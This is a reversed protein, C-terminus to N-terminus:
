RRMELLRVIVVVATIGTAVQMLVVMLLLLMYGMREGMGLILLKGSRVRTTNNTTAAHRWFWLLM